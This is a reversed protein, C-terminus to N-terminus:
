AAAPANRCAAAWTTAGSGSNTAERRWSRVDTSGGTFRRADRVSGSGARSRNPTAGSGGPGSGPGGFPLTAWRRSRTAANGVARGVARWPSEGSRRGQTDVATAVAPITMSSASWTNPSGPGRGPQSPRGQGTDVVTAAASTSFGPVGSVVMTSGLVVLEVAASWAGGVEARRVGALAGGVRGAGVAGGDVLAGRGVVVRAGVVVAGVVVTAAVVVVAAAGVM